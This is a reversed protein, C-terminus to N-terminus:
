PIVRLLDKWNDPVEIGAERLQAPWSQPHTDPLTDRRVLHRDDDIVYAPLKM